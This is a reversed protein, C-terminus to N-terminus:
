GKPDFEVHIHDKELVVDYDRNLRLRLQGVVDARISPNQPLRLDVANGSYHKSGAMHVGDTGSTITLRDNRDRYVQQAVILALLIEVSLGKVKVDDKIFM